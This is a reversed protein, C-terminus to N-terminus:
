GNGPVLAQRQPTAAADKEAAGRRQEIRQQLEEGRQASVEEALEQSQLSMTSRQAISAEADDAAFELAIEGRVRNGSGTPLPDNGSGTLDGAVINNSIDFGDTASNNVFSVNGGWYSAGECASLESSGGIQLVSGNGRYEADGYIESECVIGGLENNRVTLAGDIVTDFLDTYVGNVSFLSGLEASEVFVEGARSDLSAADTDFVYLFPDYETTGRARQLLAGSVESGELYLGFQDRGLVQGGITSDIADVFADDVARLDGGITAGELVLDAGAAVRVSGSVTTGVLVCSRDAPVVLDGPVTVAGAEGTCRTTLAASAPQAVVVFTTAAAIAASSALVAYKSIHM